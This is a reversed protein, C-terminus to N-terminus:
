FYKRSARSSTVIEILKVMLYSIFLSRVLTIIYLPDSRLSYGILIASFAGFFARSTDKLNENRLQKFSLYAIFYHLIMFITYSFPGEVSYYVTPIGSAFSEAERGLFTNKMIDAFAIPQQGFIESSFPIITSLVDFWYSSNSKFNYYISESFVWSISVSESNFANSNIYSIFDRNIIYDYIYYIGEQTPAKYSFLKIGIVFIPSVIMFYIFSKTLKLNFIAFYFSLVVICHFIPYRFGIFSEIVALSLSFIFLYRYKNIIAIMFTMIILADSFNSIYSSYSMIETKSGSFLGPYIEYIHFVYVFFLIAIISFQSNNNDKKMIIKENINDKKTTLFSLILFISCTLTVIIYAFNDIKAISTGYSGIVYLYNGILIPYYFSLFIFFSILFFDISKKMYIIFFSCLLLIILTM